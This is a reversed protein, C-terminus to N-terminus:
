LSNNYSVKAYIMKSKITTNKKMKCPMNILARSTTKRFFNVCFFPFFGRDWLASALSALLASFNEDIAIAVLKLNKCM